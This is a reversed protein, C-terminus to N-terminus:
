SLLVVKLLALIAVFITLDLQLMLRQGNLMSSIKYAILPFVLVAALEVQGTTESKFPNAQFSAFDTAMAPSGAAMTACVLALCPGMSLLLAEIEDIRREVEPKRSLAERDFDSQAEWQAQADVFSELQAENRAEIAEILYLEGQLEEQEEELEQRTGSAQCLKHSLRLSSSSSSSSRRRQRQRQLAQHPPTFPPKFAEAIVLSVLVCIIIRGARRGPGM